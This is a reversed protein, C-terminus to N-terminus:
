ARRPNWEKLIADLNPIPKSPVHRKDGKKFILTYIDLSKFIARNKHREEITARVIIKVRRSVPGALCYLVGEHPPWYLAIPNGEAEVRM